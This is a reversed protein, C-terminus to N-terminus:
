AAGVRARAELFALVEADLAIGDRRQAKMRGIEREGPLLVPTAADVPPSQHVIRAFDAMRRALDGLGLRASDILIFFHGLNQPAEPEDVWSKVQTLFAAGSLLGALLDVMLALGYGKYGGVPLLIGDLAARPDTTARGAADTAWTAPIAEGRQAAQRIKARAVVSMAMDLLVPDGGPNPM